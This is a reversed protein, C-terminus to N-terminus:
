DYFDGGVERAAKSYDILNIEQHDPFAPYSVPLADMQIKRATDLDAGIRANKKEEKMLSFISLDTTVLVLAVSIPITMTLYNDTISSLFTEQLHYLGLLALVFIIMSRAVRYTDDKTKYRSIWM